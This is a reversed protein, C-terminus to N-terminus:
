ILSLVNMKLTKLHRRISDLTLPATERNSQVPQKSVAAGATRTSLGYWGALHHHPRLAADVVQLHASSRCYGCKRWVTRDSQTLQSRRSATHCCQLNTKTELISKPPDQRLSQPMKVPDPRPKLSSLRLIKSVLGTSICGVSYYCSLLLFSDPQQRKSSQQRCRSHCGSGKKM